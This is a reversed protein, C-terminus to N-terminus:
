GGKRIVGIRIVNGDGEPLGSTAIASFSAYERRSGNVKIGVVLTLFLLVACIALVWWAYRRAYDLNIRSMVFCLGAALLVGFVQKNLYFYPGTKLWASASFLITLGLLALGVAIILIVTAPNVLSRPDLRRGAPSSSSAEAPM